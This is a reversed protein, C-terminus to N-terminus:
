VFCFLCLSAYLLAHNSHVRSSPYLQPGFNVSDLNMISVSFKERTFLSNDRTINLSTFYVYPDLSRPFSRWCYNRHVVSLFSIKSSIWIQTSVFTKISSPSTEEVAVVMVRLFCVHVCVCEYLCFVSCFVWHFSILAKHYNSYVMYPDVFCYYYCFLIM